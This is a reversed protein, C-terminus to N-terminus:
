GVFFSAKELIMANDGLRTVNICAYTKESFPFTSILRYFLFPSKVSNKFNFPVPYDSRTDVDDIL